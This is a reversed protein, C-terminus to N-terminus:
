PSGGAGVETLTAGPQMKVLVVGGHDAAWEVVATARAPLWLDVSNTAVRLVPVDQMLIVDVGRGAQSGEVLVAVHDGATLSVPMRKVPVSAEWMAASAQSVAVNAPVLAGEPVGTVAVQGVIRSRESERALTSLVAPDEAYLSTVALDSASIKTGPRIDRAARLVSVTPQPGSRLGVLLLATAALALFIVVGLLAAVRRRRALLGGPTAMPTTGTPGISM